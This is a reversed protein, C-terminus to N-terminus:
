ADSATAAPLDIVWTTGVGVQSSVDITGHHLGVIERVIALGLGFGDHAAHPEGGRRFREFIRPLQDPAIGEGTDAVTLRVRAPDTRVSPPVLKARIQIQGGPQTHRIANDVLNSLLQVLRGEDGAIALNPDSMGDVNISQQNAAAQFRERVREILPGVPVIGRTLTTQGSELRSLDLLQGILTAMRTAEVGIITHAHAREADTEIVDDRLAQAYGKISTLPTRLEHAVNALLDRQSRSTASVQRSMQNFSHVLRGLEDTGHGPVAQDLNGATMADAAATLRNIPAAIRVSLLYGIVFAIVLSIAAVVIVRPLYLAVLPFRRNPAVILLARNQRGPGGSSLLLYHDAFPSDAPPELWQQQIGPRDVATRILVRTTDAFAPLATGELNATEDSDYVVDASRNLVILRINEQDALADFAAIRGNADSVLHQRSLFNFAVTLTRSFEEIRRKEVSVEYRRLYATSILLVLLLAVAIVISHTAILRARLGLATPRLPQRHLHSTSSTM